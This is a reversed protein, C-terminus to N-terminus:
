RHKSRRTRVLLLFFAAATVGVAAGLGAYYPYNPGVVMEGQMFPHLPGCTHSCRFRFKGVKDAIFVVEEIERFGDPYTEDRLLMRPPSPFVHVDIGFGELYFGHVVDLTLLKIRVTDGRNIHLIPPEYAYQRAQITFLKTGVEEHRSAMLVASAACVVVIVIAFPIRYRNLFNSKGM